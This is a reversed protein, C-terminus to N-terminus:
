SRAANNRILGFDSVVAHLLQVEMIGVTIVQTELPRGFLQQFRRWGATRIFPYPEVIAFPKLLIALYGRRYWSRTAHSKSVPRYQRLNEFQTPITRVCTEQRFCSPWFLAVIYRPKSDM